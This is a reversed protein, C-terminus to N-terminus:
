FGVHGAFWLITVILTAAYAIGLLLMSGEIEQNQIDDIM